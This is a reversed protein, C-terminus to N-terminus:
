LLNHRAVLGANSRVVHMTSFQSPGTMAILIRGADLLSSVSLVAELGELIEWDLESLKWNSYETLKINFYM